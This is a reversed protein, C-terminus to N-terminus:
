LTSDDEFIIYETNAWPTVLMNNRNILIHNDSLISITYIVERWIDPYNGRILSEALEINVSDNSKILDILSTTYDEDELHERFKIYQNLSSQYYEIKDKVYEKIDM